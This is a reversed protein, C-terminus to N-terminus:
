SETGPWSGPQSAAGIAPGPMREPRPSRALQAAGVLAIVGLFLFGGGYAWLSSGHPQYVGFPDGTDVAPVITGVTMGPDTGYFETGTRALAGGPLEFAGVWDCGSRGGCEWRQAVFYGATGHGQEASIASAVRIGGVALLFIGLVVLFAIRVPSPNRLTRGGAALVVSARAWEWWPGGALVLGGPGRIRGVRAGKSRPCTGGM